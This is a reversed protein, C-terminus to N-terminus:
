RDQRGVVGCTPEESLSLSLGGTEKGSLLYKQTKFLWM